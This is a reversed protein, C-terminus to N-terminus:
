FPVRKIHQKGSKQSVNRVIFHVLLANSYKDNDCNLKQVTTGPMKQPTQSVNEM